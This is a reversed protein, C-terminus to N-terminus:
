KLEEYTCMAASSSWLDVTTAFTNGASPTDPPAKGEAALKEADRRQQLLIAEQTHVTRLYAAIQAARLRRSADSNAQRNLARLEASITAIERESRREFIAQYESRCLQWANGVYAYARSIDFPDYRIDVRQGAIRPDRFAPHWYYIGLIKIGKGARVTAKGSPTTPLCLLRFGETYPILMHEREGAMALGRVMAARPSMGLTSHPMDAYCEYAYDEFAATLAPLTWVALTKPNHSPSMRRPNKSVQTNGLLNHFFDQNSVGFFREVVSGFRAKAAPRTKKHSGLRALLREFYASEFDSGQDVVITKPIRHHRMVANRIVMMCSRYSPPDFTLFIALVMRTFADILVTLWPRGLNVGTRTDTLETDAQTHDIHGVEFPREGHRPTSQDIHWVFESVAYAARRGERALVIEEERRRKIEARFTKESPPMIANEECVLLFAGYCKTIVKKRSTLVESRIVEEMLEIARAEIKRERNGRQCTRAILGVYANGFRIEGERALKKWYRLTRAPVPANQADDSGAEAAAIARQRKTAQDLDRLSARRLVEDAAAQRDDVVNVLGTIAGGNVLTKFQDPTLHAITKSDDDLFIENAGVNLIRWPKGDWLIRTGAAVEVANLPAPAYQTSSEAGHKQARYIEASFEDRCIRTFAPEALLENELDVFLQDRAIMAYVTDPTVGDCQLLDALVLWRESDFAAEVAKCAEATPLPCSEDLYDTLFELNRVLLYNHEKTSIVRYNM